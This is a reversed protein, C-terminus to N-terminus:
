RNLKWVSYTLWTAFIVWGAYPLLLLSALPSIKWILAILAIVTLELFLEDFMSIYILHKTFFLYSWFVNLFGNALFLGMIWWFRNDRPIAGWPRHSNWAILASTMTLLFIVTWVMGIVQGPPTISPKEIQKYWDRLGVNTFLSGIVSVAITVLPIIIYNLRM